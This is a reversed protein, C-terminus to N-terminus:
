PVVPTFTCADTWGPRVTFPDWYDPDDTAHHFPEFPAVGSYSYSVENPTGEHIRVRVKYPLDEGPPPVINYVAHIFQLRVRYEGGWQITGGGESSLYWNHIGKDYWGHGGYSTHGAGCYEGDPHIIYLNLHLDMTSKWTVEVYLESYYFDGNLTFEGPDLNNEVDVWLEGHQAQTTFALNNLGPRLSISVGFSGDGLVECTYQEQDNITVTLREVQEISSAINGMLNFNRFTVNEGNSHSNITIQAPLFEGILTFGSTLLNNHITVLRNDENYGQTNFSLYNTGEHMPIDERFEGNVGLEVEIVENGNKISLEEVVAEGSHVVGIIDALLTTVTDGDTHSQIEITADASGSFDQAADALIDSFSEAYRITGTGFHIMKTYTTSGSVYPKFSETTRNYELMRAASPFNPDYIYLTILDPDDVLLKITHVLVVHRGPAADLLVAQPSGTLRFMNTIANYNYQHSAVYGRGIIAPAYDKYYRHVALQTRTAIVDQSFKVPSAHVIDRFSQYLRETKGLSVTDFYWKSFISMGLCNGDTYKTAKNKVWFEDNRIVYGVLLYVTSDVKAELYIITYPSAHFTEFTFTDAAYDIDVAQMGDLRGDEHVYFALPITDEDETFPVTIQVPEAFEYVAGAEIVLIPMGSEGIPLAVTGDNWGLEVVTDAPLAGPPFTMSVGDIPSGGAATITGGATGITQTTVVTDVGLTVEAPEAMYGCPWSQQGEMSDSDFPVVRYSEHAKAALDYSVLFPGEAPPAPRTISDVLEWPGEASAAGYINFGSIFAQYNQGIATIDNITIMGDANGDANQAVNWSLDGAAAEYHQGIPTLDSVNVMGDLNYDGVNVYRWELEWGAVDDGLLVLDSIENFEGTPPISVGKAAEATIVRILEAQLLEYLPKQIGTPVPRSKIDEIAEGLSLRLSGSSPLPAADMADPTAATHNSGGCGALALCICAHLITLPLILRTYTRM